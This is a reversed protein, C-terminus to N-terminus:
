SSLLAMAIMVQTLFLSKMVQMSAPKYPVFIAITAGPTITIQTVPDLQLQDRQQFQLALQERLGLIGDGPPYQNHGALTAQSLAELLAQPAPFDPFGQSLNLAGLRHALATMTSFITVGQTALKSQLQLM